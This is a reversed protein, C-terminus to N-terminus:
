IWDSDDDETDEPISPPPVDNLTRYNADYVEETNQSVPPKSSESNSNEKTSSGQSTTERRPSNLEKDKSFKYAYNTDERRMDPSQKPVNYNKAFNPANTPEWDESKRQDWDSVQPNNPITSDSLRTRASDFNTEARLNSKERYSTRTQTARPSQSSLKRDSKQSTEARNLLQWVLSSFIGAVIFIAM